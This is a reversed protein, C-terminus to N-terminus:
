AFMVEVEPREIVVSAIAKDALFTMNGIQIRDIDVSYQMYPTSPLNERQEIWINNIIEELHIPLMEGLQTEIVKSIIPASLKYLFNSAKVDIDFPDVNIKGSLSDYLPKGKIKITADVPTQIKIDIYAQDTYNIIVETVKLAKGGIVKGDILEKIKNALFDYSLELYIDQTNDLRKNVDYVWEMLPMPPVDTYHHLSKARVLLSISPLIHIFIKGEEEKLHSVQITDISGTLLLGEHIELGKALANAQKAIFGQLNVNAAIVNDLQDTIDNEKQRIVIDMITKMPINISGARVKPEDIWTYDQLQTETEFAFDAKIDVDMRIELIASGGAEMTFLGEPRKLTIELPIKILISKAVVALELLGERRLHVSFGKVEMEQHNLKEDLAEMMKRTLYKKDAITTTRILNSM